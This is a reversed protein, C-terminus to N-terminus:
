AIAALRGSCPRPFFGERLEHGALLVFCSVCQWVIPMEPGDFLGDGGTAPARIVFEHGGNFAPRYGGRHNTERLGSRYIM